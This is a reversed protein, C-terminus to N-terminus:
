LRVTLKEDGFELEDGDHLAVVENGSLPAGNIRTGNTSELDEIAFSDNNKIVRAHVRSVANNGSLQVNAASGKGITAPFDSITLTEGNSRVLKLSAVGGGLVTTEREGDDLSSGLITTGRDDSPAVAVPAASPVPSNQATVNFQASGQQGYGASAANNVPAAPAAAVNSPVPATAPTSCGSQAPYGNSYAPMNGYAPALSPDSLWDSANRAVWYGMARWTILEALSAGVLAIYILAITLIVGVAISPGLMADIARSSSYYGSNSMVSAISLGLIMCIVLYVIMEIVFTIAGILWGPLISACFLSGLGKKYSRWVPSFEFGSGLRGSLAIRIGCASLFMDAFVSLALAALLGIIPIFGLIVTAFLLVLAFVLSLVWFKAGTAWSSDAFIEKPMSERNGSVAKRGWRMAYGPVVFHLIPVLSILGLLFSKGLWGKSNRVDDWASMFCGKVTTPQAYPM